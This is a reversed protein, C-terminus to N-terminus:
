RRAADRHRPPATRGGPGELLSRLEPPLTALSSRYEETLEESVLGRECCAIAGFEDGHAYLAGITAVLCLLLRHRLRERLPV